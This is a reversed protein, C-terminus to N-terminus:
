LLLNKNKITVFIAILNSFHKNINNKEYKRGNTISDTVLSTFVYLM